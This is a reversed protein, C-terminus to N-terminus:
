KARRNRFDALCVVPAIRDVVGSVIRRGGPAAAALKAKLEAPADHFWIKGSAPDKNCTMAFVSAWTVDVGIWAGDSTRVRGFIGRESVGAAHPGNPGGKVILDLQSLCRFREPVTVGFRRPDIGVTVTGSRLLKRAVSLKQQATM